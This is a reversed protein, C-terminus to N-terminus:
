LHVAAPGHQIMKDGIVFRLVSLSTTYSTAFNICLFEGFFSGLRM